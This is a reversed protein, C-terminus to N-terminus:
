ILCSRGGLSYNPLVGNHSASSGAKAMQAVSMFVKAFIHAVKTTSQKAGPAVVGFGVESSGGVLIRKHQPQIGLELAHHKGFVEEKTKSQTEQPLM